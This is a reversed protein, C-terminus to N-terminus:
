VNVVCDAGDLLLQELGRLLRNCQRFHSQETCLHQGQTSVRTRSARLCPASYGWAALWTVPDSECSPLSQEPLPLLYPLQRVGPLGQAEMGGHRNDTHLCSLHSIFSHCM